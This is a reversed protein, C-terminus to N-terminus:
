SRQVKIFNINEGMGVFKLDECSQVIDNTMSM